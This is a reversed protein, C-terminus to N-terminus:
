PSPSTAILKVAHMVAQLRVYDYLADHMTGPLKQKSSLRSASIRLSKQVQEAATSFASVSAGCVVLCVPSPCGSHPKILEEHADRHMDPGDPWSVSGLWLAPRRLLGFHHADVGRVGWHEM